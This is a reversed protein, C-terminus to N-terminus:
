WGLLQWLWEVQWGKVVRVIQGSDVLATREGFAVHVKRGAVTDRIAKVEARVTEGSHLKVDVISGRQYDKQM